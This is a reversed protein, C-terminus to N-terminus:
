IDFATVLRLLKPFGLTFYSHPLMSKLEVNSSTCSVASDLRVRFQLRLPAYVGVSDLRTSDLGTWYSVCNEM